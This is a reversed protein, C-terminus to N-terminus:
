LKIKLSFDGNDTVVENGRSDVGRKKDYYKRSLEVNNHLKVVKAMSLDKILELNDLDGPMDFSDHISSM